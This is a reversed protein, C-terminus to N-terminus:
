APVKPRYKKSLQFLENREDPILGGRIGYLTSVSTEELHAAQLCDIAVPCSRCVDRAREYPDENLNFLLWDHGPMCVYKWRDRTVVARWPRNGSHAMQKAPVQQLYASDPETDPSPPPTDRRCHDAYSGEM